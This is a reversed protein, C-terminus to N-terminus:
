RSSNGFESFFNEIFYVGNPTAEKGPSSVLRATDELLLHEAAAGIEEWRSVISRWEPIQGLFFDGLRKAIREPTLQADAYRRGASGLAPLDAGGLMHFIQRLQAGMTLGPEVRFAAVDDVEAIGPSGSVIVPRGAALSLQLYPAVAHFPSNHLHLAVAHNALLSHWTEPRRGPVITTHQEVEFETILSQATTVDREDIMWTLHWPIGLDSLALFVKHMEGKIEARAAAAITLPSPPPFPLPTRVPACPVPLYESRHGGPHAELRRGSRASLEQLGSKSSCLLLTALARERYAFPWLPHVPNGRRNFPATSDFFRDLTYEWPSSHFAEAGLDSLAAHHLWVVGPVLGLHARAFRSSPADEISYVFLDFPNERHRRRANLFHDTHFGPCSSDTRETFFSIEFRDRLHPVVARTSYSAISDGSPDLVSFWAIRPLATM